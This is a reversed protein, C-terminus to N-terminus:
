INIFFLPGTKDVWNFQTERVKLNFPVQTDHSVNRLVTLNVRSLTSPAYWERERVRKIIWNLETVRDHGVRQSWLFQLVGPKGTWWWSGSNVWIWTWQTRSAMWGDMRQRGRRRRGEIKGLMPIKELSDTRRMLRGFYQLKLKLM